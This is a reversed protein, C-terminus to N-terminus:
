SQAPRQRVRTPELITLRGHVTSADHTALFTLLHAVINQMTTNPMRVVIIGASGAPPFRLINAFDRYDLTLLAREEACARLNEDVLFRM